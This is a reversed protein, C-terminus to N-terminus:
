SELYDNKFSFITAMTAAQLHPQLKKKARKSSHRFSMLATNLHYTKKINQPRELAKLYLQIPTPLSSTDFTGNIVQTQFTESNLKTIWDQSTLPTGNAQQFHLQMCALTLEEVKEKRDVIDWHNVDKGNEKSNVRAWINDMNTHDFNNTLLYPHYASRSPILVHTLTGTRAGDLTRSVRRSERIIQEIHKLQKIVGDIKLKPNDIFAQKAYEDLHSDRISVDDSKIVTLERRTARLDAILKKIKPTSYRFSSKLAERNLQCKLHREKKLCRGFAASWCINAHRGIKCCKKESCQLIEQIQLDINNLLQINEPTAGQHEFLYELKNIKETINYLFWRHSMEECYKKVRQPISSKLRRYPPPVFLPNYDDLLEHINIDIFIGRHDSPIIYSFPALGVANVHKAVQPSAWCGDIVSKGRFYSRASEESSIYKKIINTLGVRHFLDNLKNGFTDENFDGLILVQRNMRQDETIEALLSDLIHQRPDITINNKLLIERHQCWVTGDGSSNDTHHVPRYINYVKLHTNKGFFQIWNYRGYKDSGKSAVRM